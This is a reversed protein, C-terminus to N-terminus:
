PSGATGDYPHVGAAFLHTKKPNSDFCFIMYPAPINKQKRIYDQSREVSLSPAFPMWFDRKKIMENIVRVVDTNAPNALISRNGLARAGFEMRGSARAVVFGKVLLEAIRREIDQPTEVRIKSSFTYRSIAEEIEDNSIPKGWYLDALPEIDVAQGTKRREGAYVWYAAGVANTEDGCSPFVFMDEVEELELLLKNAKVNM